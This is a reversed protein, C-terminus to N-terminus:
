TLSIRSSGPILSEGISKGVISAQQSLLNLISFPRRVKYEVLTVKDVGTLERLAAKATDINGLKDVLNLDKAQQGLYIRGSSIENVVEPSLDRNDKVSQAFYTGTLEIMEQLLEEEEEELKRFPAGIDKRDGSVIRQYGIGYDKMLESFELYSATAGVSGTISLPSAVIVDAASAAWYAGSAGLDRILAVVPKRATAIATTIEESAVASGGPSNIDILIAKIAENADAKRISSVIDESSATDSGFFSEGGSTIVGRIKIHATNGSTTEGSFLAVLVALFIFLGIFAVGFIAIWKLGTGIGVGVKKM